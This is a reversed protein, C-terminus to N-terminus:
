SPMVKKQSKPTKTEGGRADVSETLQTLARGVRKKATEVQEATTSLHLEIRPKTETGLPHSKVYVLPNDKMVQSILPAIESEMIGNVYISAEFFSLNGASRTFVPVLSNDFIAKMESPVGPLAFITVYENKLTVAPATGVPNPLPEANEPITAMKMRQPTLTLKEGGLKKAYAIYKEQVMKLAEANVALPCGFAKAVGELTKDDFTPGLGGTTVIFQPNRSVAEILAEAIEEVVDRVVTIRTINFGLSTIRNALWQANTNVTKGILLENGVSILEINRAM